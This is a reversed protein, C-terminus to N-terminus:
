KQRRAAYNNICDHGYPIKFAEHMKCVLTCTLTGLLTTFQEAPAATEFPSRGSCVGLHTLCTMVPRIQAKYLMIKINTILCEIKFVSYTRIYTV